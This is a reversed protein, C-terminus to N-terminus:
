TLFFDSASCYLDLVSVEELPLVKKTVASKFLFQYFLLYINIEVVNVFSDHWFANFVRSFNLFAHM